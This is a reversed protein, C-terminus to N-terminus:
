EYEYKDGSKGSILKKYIYYAGALVALIIIIIFVIGFANSKAKVFIDIYYYKATGDEAEITITIKSGSTLNENNDIRVTATEDEVEYNIDLVKDEENILLTYTTTQNNFMLDYGTVNLSKLNANSSLKKEKAVNIRYISSENNPANVIIEIVSGDVLNDNNRVEVTANVDEPLANVDIFNDDEGITINYEYVENNFDIIGKSIMLSQLKNSAVVTTTETTTTTIKTQVTKRTTKKTTTKKTGYLSGDSNRTCDYKWITSCYKTDGIKNCSNYNTCGNKHLVVYPKSNGNTCKVIMDYKKLESTSYYYNIGYKYNNECVAKMCYSFYAIGNSSINKDQYSKTCESVTGGYLANSYENAANVNFPLLVFVFLIMLVLKMKNM